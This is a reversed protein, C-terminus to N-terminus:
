EESGGELGSVRAELAALQAELAATSFGELSAVRFELSAVRSEFSAVTAEVNRIRPEIRLEYIQEIYRRVREFYITDLYEYVAKGINESFITNGKQATKFIRIRTSPRNDGIISPEVEDDLTRKIIDILQQESM